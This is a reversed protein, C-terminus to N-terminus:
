VYSLGPKGYKPIPRNAYIEHLCEILLNDEGEVAFIRQEDPHCECFAKSLSPTSDFKRALHWFDLTDVFDGVIRNPLQRFEQYRPTYGFIGKDTAPVGSVFLERNKIAQDGVNALDPWPYDFRTQRTWMPSVGQMYDAQPMVSLIPIIFGWEEFAKKFTPTVSLSQAFGAPNAQPTGDSETASTQLVQSVVIPRSGGGLFEPRQLRADSSRIKYIANIVEVMRAGSVALKEFLHQAGFGQRFTNVLLGFASSGIKAILGSDVKSVGLLNGEEVTPINGGTSQSPLTPPTGGYQMRTTGYNSVNSGYLMMTGTGTTLNLAKGNGVVELNEPTELPLVPSVGRQLFPLANTFYDNPKWTRYQLDLSTTTDTGSNLSINVKSAVNQNRYWENYILQYARVPLASVMIGPNPSKIAPCGLMNLLSGKPCTTADCSIQPVVPQATGDEGGTIFTEFDKWILRTPVFWYHVTYKINHMIPRLLAQFRIDLAARGRFVDSPMVEFCGLPMLVGMKGTQKVTHSLNNDSRPIRM